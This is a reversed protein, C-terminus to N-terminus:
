TGEVLAQCTAARFFFINIFKCLHIKNSVLFTSKEEQRLYEELLRLDDEERAPFQVPIDADLSTKLVLKNNKDQLVSDLKALIQKNQEKLETLM